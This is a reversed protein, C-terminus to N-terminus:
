WVITPVSPNYGLSTASRPRCHWAAPTRIAVRDCGAHGMGTVCTSRTVSRPHSMACKTAGQKKGQSMDVVTVVQSRVGVQGGREVRWERLCRMCVSNSSFSAREREELGVSPGHNWRSQRPDVAGGVTKWGPLRKVGALVGVVAFAVSM